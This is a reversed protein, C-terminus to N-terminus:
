KTDAKALKFVDVWAEPMKGGGHLGESIYRELDYGFGILDEDVGWEGMGMIGVPIDGGGSEAQVYGVPAQLSPCGTFNALWAYEANRLSTNADALGTRLEADGGRIPWGPIATTPTVVILGPHRQFLAALHRMLLGRLRQALLYDVAPTQRGVCILLQSPATLGAVSSSAHSVSLESLATLAHAIQGPHLHPIAVDIVEYGLQEHLYAVAATCRDRVKADARDFWPKYIGLIKPRSESHASFPPPFLSSHPDSPDPTAMLRFGLELDIMNAAMPGTVGNSAAGNPSPLRSVRDHTPKLGFIGCFSSPIRISRQANLRAM